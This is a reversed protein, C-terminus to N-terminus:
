PRDIEAIPRLGILSRALEDRQGVPRIRLVPAPRVPGLQLQLIFGTRQYGPKADDFAVEGLAVEEGQGVPEHAGGYSIVAVADVRKHLPQDLQQAIGAGVFFVAAEEGELRRNPGAGAGIAHAPEGLADILLDAAPQTARCAAQGCLQGAIVLRGDGGEVSDDHLHLVEVGAMAGTNEHGQRARLGGDTM